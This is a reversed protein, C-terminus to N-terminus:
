VGNLCNDLLNLGSVVPEKQGILVEKLNNVSELFELLVNYVKVSLSSSVEHDELPLKVLKVFNLISGNILVLSERELNFSFVQLPQPIGLM